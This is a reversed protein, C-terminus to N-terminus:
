DSVVYTIFRGSNGRVFSSFSRDLTVSLNSNIFVSGTCIVDSFPFILLLDIIFLDEIDERCIALISVDFYHLELSRVSDVAVSILSSILGM